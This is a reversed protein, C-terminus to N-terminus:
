WEFYRNQQRNRIHYLMIYDDYYTEHEKNFEAINRYECFDCCLGIVDLELEKGTSHEYEELYDFLAKLGDYSFNTPRIKYFADVFDTFNVTIKM